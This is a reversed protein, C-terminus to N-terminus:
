NRKEEGTGDASKGGRVKQIKGLEELIVTCAVAIKEAHKLEELRTSGLVEFLDAGVDSIDLSMNKTAEIIDLAKKAINSKENIVAGLKMIEIIDANIERGDKTTLKIEAAM